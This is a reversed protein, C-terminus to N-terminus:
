DVDQSGSGGNEWGTVVGEVDMATAKFTLTITYESGATSGTVPTSADKKLSVSVEKGAPQNETHAKWEIADKKLPHFPSSEVGDM